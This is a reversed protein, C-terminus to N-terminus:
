LGWPELRGPYNHEDWNTYAHAPSEKHKQPENLKFIIKELNYISRITIKRNIPVSVDLIVICKM